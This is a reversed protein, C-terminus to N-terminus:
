SGPVPYGSRLRFLAGIEKMSLARDYIRIDDLLGSFHRGIRVDLEAGTNIEFLDLLGIDHIEAIRGDRYLKVHDHLNPLYAREVVVTLYHWNNDHVTDKM